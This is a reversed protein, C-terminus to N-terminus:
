KHNASRMFKLAASLRLKLGTYERHKLKTSNKSDRQKEWEISPKPAIFHHRPVLMELELEVNELKAVVYGENFVLIPTFSEFGPEKIFEGERAAAL